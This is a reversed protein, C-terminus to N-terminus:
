RGGDNQLRATPGLYTEQVQDGADDDKSTLSLACRAGHSFGPRRTSTGTKPCNAARVTHAARRCNVAASIPERLARGDHTAPAWFFDRFSTREMRSRHQWIM